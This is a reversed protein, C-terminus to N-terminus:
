PPRYAPLAVSVECGLETLAIPLSGIVDGLGGATALPAAESAIILIKM